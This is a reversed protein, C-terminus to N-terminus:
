RGPAPTQNPQPQPPHGPRPNPKEAGMQRPCLVRIVVPHSQERRCDRCDCVQKM